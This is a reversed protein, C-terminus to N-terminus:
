APRRVLRTQILRSRSYEWHFDQHEFFTKSLKGVSVDGGSAADTKRNIRSSPSALLCRLPRVRFCSADCQIHWTASWKPRFLQTTHLTTHFIDCRGVPANWSEQPASYGTSSSQHLQAPMASNICFWSMCFVLMFRNEPTWIIDETFDWTREANTQMRQTNCKPPDFDFKSFKIFYYYYFIFIHRSNSRKGGTELTKHSTRSSHSLTHSLCNHWCRTSISQPMASSDDNVHPNNKKKLVFQWCKVPLRVWQLILRFDKWMAPLVPQQFTPIILHKPLNWLCNRPASDMQHKRGFLLWFSHTYYNLWKLGMEQLFLLLM